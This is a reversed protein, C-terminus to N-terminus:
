PRQAEEDEVLCETATELMRYNGETWIGFFSGALTTYLAVKMGVMLQPIMATVGQATSLVGLDVGSLAIIFGVVTGILGLYALWSSGDHIHKIKALRKRSKAAPVTKGAKTDNLAKATKWVRFGTSGLLCAFLVAILFTIGTPDAALAAAVYGKSALFGLLAGMAGNFLTFRYLLLNKLM